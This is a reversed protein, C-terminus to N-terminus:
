FAEDDPKLYSQALSINGIIATLLNNYDHAIGGALVGISELKKAKLLEEEMKKRETIDRATLLVGSPKGDKIILSSSIEMPIRKGSKDIFASEYLYHEKDGAIRRAFREKLGALQDAPLVDTINMMLTQEKSYGSIELASNNTYTIRGDLDFVIINDRATEALLRYKEESEKLAEEAQKQETIDRTGFVVGIPRGHADRIFNGASEVWIYHGDAHRYRFEMRGESVNAIAKQTTAMVKDLDDPHVFEFVAKGLIDEPEYGLIKKNSPSVYTFIANLDTIAIMDLMNDVIQSLREESQRLTEKAQKDGTELAELEAVRRRMDKLENILQKKTKNEDKM